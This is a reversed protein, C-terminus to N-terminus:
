KRPEIVFTATGSTFAKLALRVAPIKGDPIALQYASSLDNAQQDGCGKWYATDETNSSVLLNTQTYQLEFTLSAGTSLSIQWDIEEHCIIPQSELEDATGIEINGASAADIAVRTVTAFNKVGKVTLGAGPGTIAETITAGYRNTGYVTFTKATNSQTAAYISVHRPVDLYAVGGTAYAGTIAFNGAGSLTEAVSIGNRDATEM